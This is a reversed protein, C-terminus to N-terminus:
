GARCSCCPTPSRCAGRSCRAGIVKDLANHAASTRACAVLEGDASFLAAAHVGGTADFVAQAARCGIPCRRVISKGVTPGDAVPGCSANSM